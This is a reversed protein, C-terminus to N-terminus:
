ELMMESLQQDISKVSLMIKLLKDFSITKKVIKEIREKLNHCENYTEISIEITTTKQPKENM